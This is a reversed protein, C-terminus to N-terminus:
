RALIKSSRGMFRLGIFVRGDFISVNTILVQEVASEHEGASVGISVLYLLLSIIAIRM